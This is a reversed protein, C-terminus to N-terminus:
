LLRTSRAWAEVERMGAALSIRPSYGLKARAKDMSYTHPRLLFDVVAARVPPTKGFLRAGTEMAGLVQRATSSPISRPTRRGLMRALLTFYEGFTTRVGDTLTFAEGTRDTDLALFVGDVLNDVHLHNFVGKGEDILAFMRKKMLGIPRIVWPVSGPGYVDGPRLVVVQMGGKGHAEFVLRESAVKSECYANGEGKLPADETVEPPFTFGYVMASSMHVFRRVGCEKAAALLVETGHVNVDHFLESPGDEGVIAATHFVVSSGICLRRVAAPDRVDGLTVDVGVRRAREGAAHSRELGRVKMGRALAREAMRLGIFGGVGTIAMMTERQM